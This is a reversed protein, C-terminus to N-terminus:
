IRLGRSCSLLVMVVVVVVAVVAVVVRFGLDYSLLCYVLHYLCDRFKRLKILRLSRFLSDFPGALSLM